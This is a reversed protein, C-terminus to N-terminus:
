HARVTDNLVKWLTDIQPRLTSDPFKQRVFQLLKVALDERNLGDMYVQALLLYAADLQPYPEKHLNNLLQAALPYKHQQYLVQALAHRVEPKRLPPAPETALYLEAAKHPRNIQVFKELIHPGLEQLAKQDQTALLLRYYRENLVEDNPFRRLGEVLAQRAAKFDGERMYIQAEAQARARLFENEELYNEDDDLEAVIGLKQQRSLCIYGMIASTVIYFYSTSAAIFPPVLWGPLKDAVIVILYNPAASIVSTTLWLLWYPWGIILTFHLLKIPNIASRLSHEVALVIMAAPALLSLTIAYLQLVNESGTIQVLKYGIFGAFLTMGIIKLLLVAGNGDLADTLAPAELQGGALKEIVLLNYRSVVAVIAVLAVISLLGLSTVALSGVAALAMVTLPGPKLAYIFYFLGMQWFPKASNSTGIYELHVRCLPCDPGQGHYNARAGPICESCYHRRCPQCQWSADTSTHYHCSDAM